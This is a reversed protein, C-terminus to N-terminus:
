RDAAPRQLVDPGWERILAKMARVDRAASGPRFHKRMGLGVVTNLGKARLEGEVGQLGAEPARGCVFVIDDGGRQQALALEAAPEARETWKWNSLLHLVRM